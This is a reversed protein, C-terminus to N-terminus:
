ASESPASQEAPVEWPKGAATAPAMAEELNKTVLAEQASVAEDGMEGKVWGVVQEETLADYPVFDPNDPDPNFKVLGISPSETGTAEDVATCRWDAQLVAGTDVDRALNDISWKVIKAM